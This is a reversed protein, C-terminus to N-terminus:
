GGDLVPVDQRLMVAVYYDEVRARYTQDFIKVTRYGAPPTFREPPIGTRFLCDAYVEPRYEALLSEHTRVPGARNLFSFDYTYRRAYYAIYGFGTLLRADRATHADIWRGAQLRDTNTADMVTYGLHAVWRDARLTVFAVLALSIAQLTARPAAPMHARRMLLHM